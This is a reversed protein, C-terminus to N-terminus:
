KADAFLNETSLGELLKEAYQIDEEQKTQQLQFERVLSTLYKGMLSSRYSASYGNLLQSVGERYFFRSKLMYAVQKVNSFTVNQLAFYVDVFMQRVEPDVSSLEKLKSFYHDSTLSFFMVANCTRENSKSQDLLKQFSSHGPVLTEKWRLAANQFDNYEM